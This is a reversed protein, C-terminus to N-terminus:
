DWMDLKSWDAQARRFKLEAQGEASKWFNADRKTPIPEGNELARRWGKPPPWPVGWSALTTRPSNCVHSGIGRTMPGADLIAKIRETM